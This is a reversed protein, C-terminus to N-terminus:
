HGPYAKAYQAALALVENVYWDAHNYAFIAAHLDGRSVGNDCLYFAKGVTILKKAQRVQVKVHRVM